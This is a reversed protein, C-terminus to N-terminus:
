GASAATVDAIIGILGHPDWAARGIFLGDVAPVQALAVANGRNVSGGYLLPIAAGADGLWQVLDARIARHMAAAQAPSAPTGREGIAWVPEYALLVRGLAEAAVGDLAARVQRRVVAEGSGDRMEEAREGVCILPRLGHRLAAHVKRNVWADTEGFWERRESHGIEALTAGADRLMAGSIEGTWAGRDEWHLDQGGVLVPADGLAEVVAAIATFPPLVFAQLGPDRRLGARLVGAYARAEAISFNMKWGTGIWRM